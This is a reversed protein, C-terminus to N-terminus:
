ATYIFGQAILSIVMLFIFKHNKTLEFTAWKNGKNLASYINEANNRLPKSAVRSMSQYGTIKGQEYQPTTFTDLWIDQQKNNKIQMVGHWSFGKSLTASLEDIVSKPMNKHTLQKINKTLLEASEYGVLNCYSENAYTLQGRRDTVFILQQNTLSM